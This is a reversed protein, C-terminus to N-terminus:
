AARKRARRQRDLRRTLLDRACTVHHAVGGISLVRSYQTIGSNCAPCWLKESLSFSLRVDPPKM